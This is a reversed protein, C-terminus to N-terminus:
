SADFEGRARRRLGTSKPITKATTKPLPAVELMRRVLARVSDRYARLGRGSARGAGWLVERQAENTSAHFIVAGTFFLLTTRPDADQRFEGAAQGGRVFADGLELLPGVYAKAREAAQAHGDIADRMILRAFLPRRAFVDVLRGVVDDLREVYTAAPRGLAAVVLGRLDAFARDLVREYLAQKTAFHYLLTARRVGAAAAIDELRADGFGRTAFEAEAAELLRDVTGRAEETV